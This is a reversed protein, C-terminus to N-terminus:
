LTVKLFINSITIHANQQQPQALLDGVMWNWYSSSIEPSYFHTECQFLRGQPNKM